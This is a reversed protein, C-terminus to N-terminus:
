YSRAFEQWYECGWAEFVGAKVWDGPRETFVVFTWTGSSGPPIDGQKEMEYIWVEEAWWDQTGDTLVFYPYWPARISSNTRNDITVEVSFKQGGVQTEQEYRMKAWTATLLSACDNGGEGGGGSGGGGGGLIGGGGGGGGGGGTFDKDTFNKDEVVQGTETDIVFFSQMVADWYATAEIEGQVASVLVSLQVPFLLMYKGILLGTVVMDPSPNQFASALAVHGEVAQEIMVKDYETSAAWMAVIAILSGSQSDRTMDCEIVRYGKGELYRTAEQAGSVASVPAVLMTSLLMTIILAAIIRYRSM